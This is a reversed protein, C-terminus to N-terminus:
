DANIRINHLFFTRNNYCSLIFFIPIRKTKIEKIM